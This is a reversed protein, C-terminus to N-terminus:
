PGCPRGRERPRHISGLHNGHGLPSESRQSIGGARVRPGQERLADAACPDPRDPIAHRTGSTPKLVQRTQGILEKLRDLPVSEVFIPRMIGPDGAEFRERVSERGATSLFRPSGFRLVVSASGPTRDVRIRAGRANLPLYRDNRKSMFLLVDDGASPLPAGAAGAIEWTRLRPAGDITEYVTGGPVVVEVEELRCSGDKDLLCETILVRYPTFVLGTSRDKIGLFLRRGDPLQVSEGSAGRMTGLVIRDSTVVMDEFSPEESSPATTALYPVLLSAVLVLSRITM